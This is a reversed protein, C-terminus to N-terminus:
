AASGGDAMTVPTARALERAAVLEEGPDRGDVMAYAKIHVADLSLEVARRADELAAEDADRAVHIPEGVVVAARGFPLGISARDWSKFQIRRSTVVATPVIPQGSMRALTVIGVGCVRAVKPVDATLVVMEGRQLAKLMARLAPAGGKERVKRGLAGSGRIPNVNLHRLAIANFEGDGHRSILASTPDQPRRGFHIMFHQGHWMAVIVPMLPGVRDYIDAPELTVRNTAHVLKLYYALIFGLTEQVPRSRILRKFM